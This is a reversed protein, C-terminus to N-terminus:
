LSYSSSRSMVLAMGPTLLDVGVLALIILFDDWWLGAPSLKRAVCRMVTVSTSCVILFIQLGDLSSLAGTM